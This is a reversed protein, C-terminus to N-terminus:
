PPGGARSSRGYNSQNAMMLYSVALERATAGCTVLRCIAPVSSISVLLLVAALAELGSVVRPNNTARGCEQDGEAASGTYDSGRRGRGLVPVPFPLWSSQGRDM